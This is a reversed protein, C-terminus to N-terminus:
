YNGVHTYLRPARGPSGSAGGDHNMSWCRKSAPLPPFRAQPHPPPEAGSCPGSIPAPGASPLVPACGLLM